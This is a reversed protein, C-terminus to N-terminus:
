FIILECCYKITSVQLINVAKRMDGQSLTIVSQLGADEMVVRFLM